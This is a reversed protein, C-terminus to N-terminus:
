FISKHYLMYRSVPYAYDSVLLPKLWYRKWLTQIERARKDRITRNIIALGKELRWNYSIENIERISKVDGNEDYYEPSLPNYLVDLYTISEPFILGQFSEIKNNACYFSTM